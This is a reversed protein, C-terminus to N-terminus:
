ISTQANIKARIQILGVVISGIILADVGIGDLELFAQGLEIMSYM